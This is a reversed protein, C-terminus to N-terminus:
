CEPNQIGTLKVLRLLGGHLINLWVDGFESGQKQLHLYAGCVVNHQRKACVTKYKCLVASSCLCFHCLTVFM